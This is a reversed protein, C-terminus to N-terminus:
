LSALMRTGLADDVVRMNYIMGKIQINIYIVSYLVLKVVDLEPM